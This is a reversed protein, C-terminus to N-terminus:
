NEENEGEKQQLMRNIKKMSENQNRPKRENM